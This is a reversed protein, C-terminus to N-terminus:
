DVELRLNMGNRMRTWIKEHQLTTNLTSMERTDYHVVKNVLM